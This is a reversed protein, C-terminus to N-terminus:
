IPPLSKAEALERQLADYRERDVPISVPQGTCGSLTIAAVLEQSNRGDEGTIMPERDELIAAAFDEIAPVHTNAVPAMEFTETRHGPADYTPSRDTDIFEQVPTDLRHLTIKWDDMVIAGTEGWIELRQHNPALSTNCHMSGQGGGEFSLIATAFDEVEADHRFTSVLGFVTKPMGGLWQMMDIAHIGQNLLTGGGEDTWTGRWALRDYYDQTRIMTSSTVVRNIDGVAGQDILERMKLAESRFRLNYLVGLKVGAERCARVMDDAESPTVSMPKEVLVHKGAAAAQVTIDRHSPHPTAIVVADVEPHALTGDLTPFHAVGLEEAQQRLPAQTRATIGVLRCNDLRNIADIHVRGIVGTSGIVALGINSM